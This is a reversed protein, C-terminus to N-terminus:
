GKSPISGPFADWRNVIRQWLRVTVFRWVHGAVNRVSPTGHTSPCQTPQALHSTRPRRSPLARRPTTYPLAAPTPTGPLPPAHPVPCQTHAHTHRTVTYTAAHPVAHRLRPHRAADRPVCGWPPAGAGRGRRGTRLVDARDHVPKRGQSLQQM